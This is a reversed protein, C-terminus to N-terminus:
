AVEVGSVTAIVSDPISAIMYLKDGPNVVLSMDKNEVTREGIFQDAYIENWDQATSGAPALFISYRILGSTINSILISKIIGKNEFVKIPNTSLPVLTAPGFFRTPIYAM